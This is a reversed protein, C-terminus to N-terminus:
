VNLDERKLAEYVMRAAKRNTSEASQKQAWQKSASTRTFWISFLALVVATPLIVWIDVRLWSYLILTVLVNIELIVIPSMRRKTPCAFIPEGHGSHPCNHVVLKSLDIGQFRSLTEPMPKRCLPVPIVRKRQSLSEEIEIGVWKSESAHCCWFVVVQRSGRLSKLIEDEWLDGPQISVSDRFVQRGDIKLMQELREVLDLDQRSYSIFVDPNNM